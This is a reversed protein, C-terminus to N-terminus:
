DSRINIPLVLKLNDREGKRGSKIVIPEHPEYVEIKAIKKNSDYFSISELAEKLYKANIGLTTVMKKKKLPELVKDVAYFQGEPQVYGIISEGVQAYLRNKNVELEAYNDYRTVKPMVPRIYCTFTEDAEVLKAYEISVRYGDLATAKIIMEEADIELYIWSMLENSADKNVFRKTNDIIRKFENADLKARM